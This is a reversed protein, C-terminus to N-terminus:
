DGSDSVEGDKEKTRGYVDDFREIDDEGLYSGCQVEVIWLPEDSQNELRHKSGIPICVSENVRMDFSKEDLTVRAVGKVVVWHESRQRHRQLSLTHGPNVVLRKVQFNEGIDVGEYSGWPRYVKRHFDGEERLREKLNAVLQKVSQYDSRDAVLVADPTEAIIHKNLGSLAVLRYSSYVINGHSNHTFVDGTTFNNDADCRFLETMSEWSGLDSWGVDVPMVVAAPIKEVVAYDISIAPSLAFDDNDFRTLNIGMLRDEQRNAWTNTCARIIEPAYKELAARYVSSRCMFIGSNWYCNDSALYQEVQQRDPKETFATVAQVENHPKGSGIIYGYGTEPRTPKVGFTVFAGERAHATARQIMDAFAAEDTVLHDSPLFLMLPDSAEECAHMALAFAPATDRGSPELLVEYRDGNNKRLEEITFFRHAENCVVIARKSQLLAVRKLTHSFLSEGNIQLAFQKPYKSRSLPWLRTGSGGSVIVPILDSLSNNLSDRYDTM